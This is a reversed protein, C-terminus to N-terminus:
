TKVSEDIFFVALSLLVQIIGVSKRYLASPAKREGKGLWASGAGCSEWGPVAPMAQEHTVLAAM